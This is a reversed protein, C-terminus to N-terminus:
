SAEPVAAALLRRRLTILAFTGGFCVAAIVFFMDRIGMTDALMGGLWPGVFMGISYVAQHIGMATSRHAQDVREISLGMLTPATFGVSLGLIFAGVFLLLTTHTVAVFAIGASFLAFALYLVNTRSIRRTVVANALNGVVSALVNLGILLGVEIQTAGINRALIPMFSLVVAWSGIQGVAAIFAPLLVDPRTFIKRVSAASVSRVEQREIKTAAIIVVSVLASVGALYFPLPYGGIGNLFGTASNALVRGLSSSTSLLSTALVAQKPPFYGSFVVILPVWTGAALGTIARGLALTGYSKGESMVLAGVLTLLFGAILYPKGRGTASITVGLPIRIIGQWLGYMSLVVGVAALNPTYSRVFEPLTPVYLYLGIWYFFSAALFAALKRRDM